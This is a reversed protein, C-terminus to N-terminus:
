KIKNENKCSKECLRLVLATMFGSSTLLVKSWKVNSSTDIQDPQIVGASNLHFRAVARGTPASGRANNLWHCSHGWCSSSASFRARWTGSVRFAPCRCDKSQLFSSFSRINKMKFYWKSMDSINLREVASRPRWWLEQLVSMQFLIIPHWVDFMLM